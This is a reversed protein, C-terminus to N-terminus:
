KIEEGGWFYIHKSKNGGWVCGSWKTWQLTIGVGGWNDQSGQKRGQGGWVRGPTPEHWLLMWWWQYCTNCCCHYTLLYSILRSNAFASRGVTFGSNLLEQHSSSKLCNFRRMCKFRLKISFQSTVSLLPTWWLQANVIVGLLGLAGMELLPMSTCTYLADFRSQWSCKQPRVWGEGPASCSPMHSLGGADRAETPPHLQVAHPLCHARQLPELLLMKPLAGGPWCTGAHSSQAKAGAPGAPDM